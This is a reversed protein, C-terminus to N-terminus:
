FVAPENVTKMFIMKQLTEVQEHLLYRFDWKSFNVAKKGLKYDTYFERTFEPLAICGIIINFLTPASIKGTGFLFSSMRTEEVVSTRYGLLTHCIDHEEYNSSIGFSQDNYFNFWAKGLTGEKYHALQDLTVKWKSVKPKFFRIYIPFLFETLKYLNRERFELTKQYWKAGKSLTYTLGREYCPKVSYNTTIM